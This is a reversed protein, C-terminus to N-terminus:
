AAVDPLHAASDPQGSSPLCSGGPLFFFDVHQKTLIDEVKYLGFKVETKLGSLQWVRVPDSSTTEDHSARGDYPATLCSGSSTWVTRRIELITLWIDAQDKYLAQGQTNHELLLFYVSVSSMPMQTEPTGFWDFWIASCLPTKFHRNSHMNVM